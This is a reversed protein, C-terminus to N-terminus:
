ALVRGVLSLLAAEAIVSGLVAVIGPVWLSGYEAGRLQQGLDAARQIRAQLLYALVAPIRFLLTGRGQGSEYYLVWGVATVVFAALGIAAIALKGSRGVGLRGANILSIAAGAFAGGFFAVFGISTLRWPLEGSRTTVTPRLLPDSVGREALTGDGDERGGKTAPGM